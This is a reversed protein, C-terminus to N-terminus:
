LLAKAHRMVEEIQQTRTNDENHLVFGPHFVFASKLNMTAQIIVRKPQVGKKPWLPILTIKGM